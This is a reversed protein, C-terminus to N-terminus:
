NQKCLNSGRSPLLLTKARLVRSFIEKKKEAEDCNGLRLRLEEKCLSPVSAFYDATEKKFM